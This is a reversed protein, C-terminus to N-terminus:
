FVSRTCTYYIIIMIIIIINSCINLFIVKVRMGHVIARKIAQQLFIYIYVEKKINVQHSEQEEVSKYLNTTTQSILPM